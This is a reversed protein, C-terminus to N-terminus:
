VDAFISREMKVPARVFKRRMSDFFQHSKILTAALAKRELSGCMIRCNELGDIGSRVFNARKLDNESALTRPPPTIKASGAV